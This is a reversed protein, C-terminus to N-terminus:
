RADGVTGTAGVTPISLVFRAGLTGPRAPPLTSDGTASVAGGHLVAVDRAISLGVGLGGHATRVVFREFLTRRAEPTIGSGDDEVVVSALSGEEVVTVRANKRSHVMANRVLETLAANLLRRDASVSIPTGPDFAIRVEARPETAVVGEIAAKVAEGLDSRQFVPKLRQAELEALLGLRDIFAQMRRAGRGGLTLLTRHEEQLHPELDTALQRFVHLIV